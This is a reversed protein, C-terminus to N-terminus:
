RLDCRYTHCINAFASARNLQICITHINFETSRRKLVSSNIAM